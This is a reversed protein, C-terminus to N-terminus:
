VKPLDQAATKNFESDFTSLARQMMEANRQISILGVASAVPNVNSSELAGQQVSLQTAPTAAAQPASFYGNGLPTLPVDRAFASLKLQGALDGNISIVGASSISADGTPLTIPGNAGLVPYGEATVLRGSRTVHFNGNRTYQTGTPSQVAFFGQGELALDLPNGTQQLSGQSFDTQPTGLLGFTSVSQAAVNASANMMQSRFSVRSGRFGTTNANALNEAAIDLQQTRALLGASAAYIGNNM